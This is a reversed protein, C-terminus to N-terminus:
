LNLQPYKAKLANKKKQKETELSEIEKEDGSLSRHGVFQQLKKVENMLQMTEESFNTECFKEWIYEIALENPHMMDASWFRYDRLDDNMIEYAPFYSVKEGLWNQIAVHLMSKSLQNEVFGDKLHKVPSLTFVIHAAPNLFLIRDIMKELNIEIESATLLRKEFLEAAMKHCNAVVMQKEKELYIWATGLTVFVFSAEKIFKAHLQTTDNINGLIDAAVKTDFCGHHAYSFYRGNDFTLDKEKYSAPNMLDFFSESISFPNYIIGHSNSLVNFGHYQFKKAINESFCSGMFYVRNGHDIKISSPEIHIDTKLKM